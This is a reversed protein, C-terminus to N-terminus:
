RSASDWVVRGAVWTKRMMPADHDFLLAALVDDATEAWPPPEFWVLDAPRGAEIAGSDRGLAEAGGRTGWWLLEAPTVSVGHRLANDYAASLIRPVRFSRGAAIDTGIGLRIGRSLVERVPMGGSGLFDNSDPCHAVVAGAAAMRDWESPSLHICHAFVAGPRLLGAQEYVELYDGTGFREVAIRCEERSESLHTSAVLDHDGALRGAAKMLTRSCSLAFRPIIAVQCGSRGNWTDILAEVAPVMRDAGIRLAEPCDEDMWVPGAVLQMGRREAGAFLTHVADPFVPGYVLALTTGAAALNRCFREAVAEAHTAEAFRTEEPFTSTKLWDLLPGSARGVIRTQPFHVHTDVFGPLLVGPRLDEDVAQGRYPAVGTIRGGFVTVVADEIWDVREPGAPSLVRARLVLM